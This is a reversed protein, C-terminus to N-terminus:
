KFDLAIVFSAAAVGVVYTAREQAVTETRVTAAASRIAAAEYSAAPQEQASFAVLFERRGSGGVKIAPTTAEAMREVRTQLLPTRAGPEAVHLYGAMNPVFRLKITDGKALSEAVITEYDGNPLLRLVQYRLGPTRAGPNSTAASGPDVVRGVPPATPAGTTLTAATRRLPLDRPNSPSRSSESGGPQVVARVDTVWPEEALTRSTLEIRGLDRTGAGAVDINKQVYGQFVAGPALTLDNRYRAIGLDYRAPFISIMVFVGDSNTLTDLIAGTAVNRIRARANPVAAGGPDVVRGLLTARTQAAPAGGMGAARQPPASPAVAKKAEAKATQVPTAAATAMVSVSETVAGVALAVRGVDRSQAVSLNIDPQTYVQFGSASATLAYRAPPLNEFRFAGESNSRTTIVAGTAINKLQVQANPVAAGAPDAVTGTLVAATRGGRALGADSLNGGDMFM